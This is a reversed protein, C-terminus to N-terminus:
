ECSVGNNKGAAGGEARVAEDEVERRPRQGGGRGQGNLSARDWGGRELHRERGNGRPYPLVRLPASLLTGDGRVAHQAYQDHKGSCREGRRLGAEGGSRWWDNRLIGLEQR